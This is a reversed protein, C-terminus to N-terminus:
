IKDYFRIPPGFHSIVFYKLTVFLPKSYLFFCWPATLMELLHCFLSSFLCTKYKYRFNKPHM